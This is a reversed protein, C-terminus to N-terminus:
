IPSSCLAWAGDKAIFIRVGPGSVGIYWEMSTEARTLVGYLLAVCSFFLDLLVVVRELCPPILSEEKAKTKAM